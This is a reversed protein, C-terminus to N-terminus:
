SQVEGGTGVEAYSLYIQQNQQFEPDLIVDGLGGQGGYAVEPIAQVDLSQGTKPDFLKLKGAKETILLRGDPLEALAWPENFDAIPQIQYRQLNQASTSKSELLRTRNRSLKRM